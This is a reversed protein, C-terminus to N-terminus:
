RLRVEVQAEDLRFLSAHHRQLRGREASVKPMCAEVLSCPPCRSDAVPPPLMELADVSRIADIIQRVRQRLEPTFTVNRRQRSVM